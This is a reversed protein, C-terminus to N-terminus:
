GQKGVIKNRFLALVLLLVAVVCLIWFGPEFGATINSQSTSGLSVFTTGVLKVGYFDAARISAVLIFGAIFCVTCIGIIGVLLSSLNFSKKGFLSIERKNFILGAVLAIVCLGLYIWMIPAFWGPMDSGAVYDAYIGMYNELGWPYIVVAPDIKLAVVEASWLPMFWASVLLGACILVLARFIWLRLTNM